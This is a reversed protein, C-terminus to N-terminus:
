FFYKLALQIQRQSPFGVPTTITSFSQGFTAPASVNAAPNSFEPTNFVNFIEARFELLQSERVKFKKFVSFDWNLLAPGRLMNRGSDGFQGTGLPTVFAAPNIV